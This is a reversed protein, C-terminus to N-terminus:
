DHDAEMAAASSEDSIAHSRASVETFKQCGTQSAVALILFTHIFKM